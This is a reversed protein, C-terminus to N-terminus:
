RTQNTDMPTTTLHWKTGKRTVSVCRKNLEDVIERMTMGSERLAKIIEVAEAEAPTYNQKM